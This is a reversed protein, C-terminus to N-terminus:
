NKYYRDHMINQITQISTNYKKVKERVSIPDDKIKAAKEHTFKKPRTARKYLTAEDDWSELRCSEGSPLHKNISEEMDKKKQDTLSIRKGDVYISFVAAKDDVDRTNKNRKV